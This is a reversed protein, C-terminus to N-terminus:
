SWDGRENVGIPKFELHEEVPVEKIMNKTILNKYCWYNFVREVLFCIARKQYNDRGTLDIRKELDFVIPFVFECWMFFLRKKMIFMNCPAFNTTHTLLYDRFDNGFRLDHERIVDVCTQLDAINHYISYQEALTTNTNSFVPQALIMDMDAYDLIQDRPFFRRYHNFGIFDPNQIRDYNKWAWYISTLENLTRNKGSINNGTDDPILHTSSWGDNLSHGGNIPVYIDENEELLTKLEKTPSYFVNVIIKLSRGMSCKMIKLRNRKKNHGIVINGINNELCLDIIKKSLCHFEYELKNRKFTM